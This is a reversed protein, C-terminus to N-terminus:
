FYCHIITKYNVRDFDPNKIWNPIEPLMKQLTEDDQDVLPTIKPDQGDLGFLLTLFIQFM